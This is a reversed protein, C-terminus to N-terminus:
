RSITTRLVSIIDKGWNQKILSQSDTSPPLFTSIQDVTFIEDECGDNWGLLALYNVMAPAVYGMEMFQVTM